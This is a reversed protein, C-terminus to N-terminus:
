YASGQTTCVNVKACKRHRVISGNKATGTRNGGCESSSVLWDIRVM